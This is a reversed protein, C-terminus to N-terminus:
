ILQAESTSTPDATSQSISNAQDKETNSSQQIVNDEVLESSSAQITASAPNNTSNLNNNQSEEETNSPSNQPVLRQVLTTFEGPLFNMRLAGDHSFFTSYTPVIPYGDLFATFGPETLKSTKPEIVPEWPLAYKGPYAEDLNLQFFPHESPKYFWFTRYHDLKQCFEIAGIFDQRYGSRKAEAMHELPYFYCPPTLPLIAPDLWILEPLEKSEILEQETKKLQTHIERCKDRRTKMFRRFQDWFYGPLIREPIHFQFM